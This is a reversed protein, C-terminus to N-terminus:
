QGPNVIAHLIALHAIEVIGYNSSPVYYNCDGLARLPNNPSFGSFTVIKAGSEKAVSVANLINQSKGSSSIAILIRYANSLARVQIALAEHWGYDNAACTLTAPDTLTLASGGRAVIDNAIHSAM